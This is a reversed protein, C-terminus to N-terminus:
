SYNISYGDSVITINNQLDTRLVNINYKNLKLLTSQNPHGYINDKGASIIAYKPNVKKLFSDSTSTSSGHHAVKLVDASIDDNLSLLKDEIEKESDGTFLFSTNRYSIKIVSSYNNENDYTDNIPSLVHVRTNPGLVITDCGRKIPIIKLNNNKLSEVMKEFSKTSSYVKPAYFSKVNFTDIITNMNGIHDDHPHTAVVYDLTSVGLSKLYKILPKKHSKPGSDILLNKKNVQILISDGQGVNIYHVYMLNPNTRQNSLKKSYFSFLMFFCFLLLLFIYYKKTRKKIKFIM